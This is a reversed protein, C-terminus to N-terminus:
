ARSAGSHVIHGASGVAHLFVLKAYHTMTRKKHFRYWDWGLMFFLANINQPGLAGSHLLHGAYAVPKLFVYKSTEHRLRV